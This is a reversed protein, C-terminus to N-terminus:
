PKLAGDGNRKRAEATEPGAASPIPNRLARGLIFATALGVITAGALVSGIWECKWYACLSIAAFAGFSVLVACWRGERADARALPIDRISAEVLQKELNARHNREEEAMRVIRDALGPHVRDYAALDAPAPLPGSYAYSASMLRTLPKEPTTSPAQDRRAERKQPQTPVAGGTQLPGAGSSTEEAM